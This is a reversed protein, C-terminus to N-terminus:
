WSLELNRESDLNPAPKRRLGYRFKSMGSGTSHSSDGSASNENSNQSTLSTLSTMSLLSLLPARRTSSITELLDEELEKEAEKRAWLKRSSVGQSYCCILLDVLLYSGPTASILLSGSISNYVYILMLAPSALLTVFALLIQETLVLRWTQDERNSTEPDRCHALVPGIFYCLLTFSVIWDSALFTLSIWGSVPCICTGDDLVGSSTVAVGWSIAGIFGVM